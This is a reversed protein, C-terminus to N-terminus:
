LFCFIAIGCGQCAMACRNQEILIQLLYDMEFSFLDNLGDIFFLGAFGALLFMSWHSTHSKKFLIEMGYYVTGSLLFIFIHCLIKSFIRNLKRMM